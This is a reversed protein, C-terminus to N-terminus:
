KSEALSSFFFFTNVFHFLLFPKFVLLFHFFTFFFRFLVSCFDCSCNVHLRLMYDEVNCTSHAHVSALRVLSETDIVLCCQLYESVDLPAGVTGLLHRFHLHEPGSDM